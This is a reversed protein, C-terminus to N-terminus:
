HKAELILNTKSNAVVIYAHVHLLGNVSAPASAGGAESEWIANLPAPISFTLTQSSASFLYADVELANATNTATYYSLLMPWNTISLTTAQTVTLTQSMRMMDIFYVAGPTVNTTDLIKAGYNKVGINGTIDQQHPKTYDVSNHYLPSQTAFTTLTPNGSPDILTTGVFISAGVATTGNWWANGYEQVGSLDYNTHGASIVGGWPMNAFASPGTAAGSGFQEYMPTVNGNTDCGIFAYNNGYFQWEHGNGYGGHNTQMQITGYRIQSNPDDGFAIFSGSGVGASNGGRLFISGGTSNALILNQSWLVTTQGAANTYVPYLQATVPTGASSVALIALINTKATFRGTGQFATLDPTGTIGVGFDDGGQVYYYDQNSVANVYYAPGFNQEYYGKWGDTNTAADYTAGSPIMPASLNAVIPGVTIGAQSSNSLLYTFGAAVLLIAAVSWWQKLHKM